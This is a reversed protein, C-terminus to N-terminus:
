YNCYVFGQHKFRGKGLFNNEEVSLLQPALMADLRSACIGLFADFRKLFTTTAEPVSEAVSALVARKKLFDAIASFAKVRNDQPRGVM